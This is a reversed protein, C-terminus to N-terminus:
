SCTFKIGLKLQVDSNESGSSSHKFYEFYRKTSNLGDQVELLQVSTISM